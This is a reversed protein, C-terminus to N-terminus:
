AIGGVGEAGRADGVRAAGVVAPPRWFAAVLDVSGSRRLPTAEERYAERAAGLHSDPLSGDARVVRWWPVGAGHLALVNGVRRPGYRGVAEAIAGYTTVRGRPVSEVCGLVDEVYDEPHRM